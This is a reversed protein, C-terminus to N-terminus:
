DSKKTVKMLNYKILKPNINKMRGSLMKIDRERNDEVTLYFRACDESLVAKITGIYSIVGPEVTFRISQNEQHGYGGDVSLENLEYVGPGLSFAHLRGLESGFESKYGNSGIGFRFTKIEGAYNLASKPLVKIYSIDSLRGCSKNAGTSAIILGKKSLDLDSYDRDIMNPPACGLATLALVVLIFIYIKNIIITRM